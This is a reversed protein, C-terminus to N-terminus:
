LFDKPINKMQEELNWNKPKEKEDFWKYWWDIWEKRKREIAIQKCDNYWSEGGCCVCIQWSPWGTELWFPDKDEFWCIKCVYKAKYKM